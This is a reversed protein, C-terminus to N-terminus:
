RRPTFQPATARASRELVLRRAVTEYLHCRPVLLIDHSGGDAEADCIAKAHAAWAESQARLSARQDHSAGRIAAAQVTELRYQQVELETIVCRAALAVGGGDVPTSFCTLFDESFADHVQERTLVPDVSPLSPPGFWPDLRAAPKSNAQGVGSHGASGNGAAWALGLGAGTAMGVVLIIAM